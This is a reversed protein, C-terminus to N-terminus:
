RERIKIKDLMRQLNSSNIEGIGKTQSIFEPASPDDFLIQNIKPYDSYCYEELLPLIEHRWVLVLDDITKVNFLFAHGIQKDRGISKDGCIEVNIGKEIVVISKTLLNYTEDDIDDENRRNEIHERLINFNPNMEIFGFRRRLAVDLLALSRDATNMTGIIYINPPVGFEDNSNPLKVILENDAELLTILEGFIKAIDGRNIEDIVLVYRPANKFNVKKKSLYKKYTDIWDKGSVGIASDLAKKCIDKFLGRRRIYEPNETAVNEGETKVTIGEIFEEYSYSPHFAIFEIRGEKRLEEYQKNIDQLNNGELVKVSLERTSYTKGTGPPGYLIIQKKKKLLRIAEDNDDIIPTITKVRLPQANEQRVTDLPKVDFMKRKNGQQICFDLMGYKNALQNGIQRRWEVYGKDEEEVRLDFYKEQIDGVIDIKKISRFKDGTDGGRKINNIVSRIENEKKRLDLSKNQNILKFRYTAIDSM